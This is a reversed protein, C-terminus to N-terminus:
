FTVSPVTTASASAQFYEEPTFGLIGAILVTPFSKVKANYAKVVDNYDKRAVAIRNETGALEDSLSIFLADSKLTPYNEVVVLLRSLAGTLETNAADKQALTNAGALKARAETVSNVVALEQKTFGQVTSVLNPILDLRRQLQTDIDKLKATVGEKQTVLGNYSGALSAGFILIVILIVIIAILGRKMQKGGNQFM